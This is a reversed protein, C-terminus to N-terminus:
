LFNQRAPGDGDAMQLLTEVGEVEQAIVEFLGDGAVEEEVGFM